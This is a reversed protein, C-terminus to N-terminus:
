LRWRGSRLFKTVAFSTFAGHHRATVGTNVGGGREDLGAWCLRDQSHQIGGPVSVNNLVGPKEVFRANKTAFFVPAGDTNERIAFEAGEAKGPDLEQLARHLLQMGAQHYSRAQPLVAEDEDQDLKVMRYSNV